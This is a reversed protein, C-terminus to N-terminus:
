SLVLLKFINLYLVPMLFLAANEKCNCYVLASFDAAVM